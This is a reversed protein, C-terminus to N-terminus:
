VGHKTAHNVPQVDKVSKLLRGYICLVAWGNVQVDDVYGYMGVGKGVSGDLDSTFAPLVDLCEGGVRHIKIEITYTILTYITSEIVVIWM